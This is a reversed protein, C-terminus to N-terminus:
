SGPVKNRALSLIEILSSVQLNDGPFFLGQSGLLLSLYDIEGGKISRSLVNGNECCADL